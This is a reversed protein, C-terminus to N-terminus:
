PLRRSVPLSDSAMSFHQKRVQEGSECDAVKGGSELVVQGPSAGGVTPQAGAWEHKSLPFFAGM